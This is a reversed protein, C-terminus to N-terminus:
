KEKEYKNQEDPKKIQKASWEMLDLVSSKSALKGTHFIFDSVLEDLQKHLSIHRRRHKVETWGEKNKM